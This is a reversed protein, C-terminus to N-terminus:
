CKKYDGLLFSLEPCVSFMNLATVAPFKVQKPFSRAM